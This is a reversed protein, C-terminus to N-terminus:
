VECAPMRSLIYDTAQRASEVGRQRIEELRARLRRQEEATREPEVARKDLEEVERQLRQLDQAEAELRDALRQNGASTEAALGELLITM